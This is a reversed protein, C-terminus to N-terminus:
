ESDTIHTQLRPERVRLAMWATSIVALGLLVFFVRQLDFSEALAGVILPATLTTPLMIFNSAMWHTARNAHPCTEVVLNFHSIDSGAMSVGFCAFALACGWTGPVFLLVLMTAILMANSIIAGIHHGHRDSFHGIVFASTCKTAWLAASLSVIWEKSLGGGVESLFYVTIFPNVSYGFTALVRGILYNRFSRDALSHRCDAILDATHVPTPAAGTVEAPDQIRLYLAVGITSVVAAFLYLLAYGEYGPQQHLVWGAIQASIISAIGAVGLVAGLFKGRISRDFVESVWSNWAAMVTGTGFSFAAFCLWLAWHSTTHGLAEGQWAVLGFLLYSPGFALMQAYVLHQKLRARHRFIYLGIVQGLLACGSQLTLLSAIMWKPADHVDRLLIVLVIMPNVAMAGLNWTFDATVFRVVSSLVPRRM